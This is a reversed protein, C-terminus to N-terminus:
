EKWSYSEERMQAFLEPQESALLTYADAEDLDKDADTLKKLESLFKTTAEGEGSADSDGGSGSGPRGGIEGLEVVGGKGMVMKMAELVGAQTAADAGALTESLKAEVAPSLSKGGENRMESLQLKIGSVRDKAELDALRKENLANQEMLLKVLPNKSAEALLMENLAATALEEKNDESKDDKKDAPKDENKPKDDSKDGPKSNADDAGSSGGSETSKALVAAQLDDDKTDKDFKVGLNTALSELLARDMDPGGPEQTIEHLNIPLIGKLFPRNTLAGGRLVDRHKQRTRPDVFESWFEPSFYKYAKDRIKQAAETTWEVLGWLGDSRVVTQRIWGAADMRQVKHDYDIDLDQGTVRANASQSLRQALDLTAKIEGHIPHHYTGLPLIQVWGTNTGEEFKFLTLDAWFGFTKNTM